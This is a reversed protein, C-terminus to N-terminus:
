YAGDRRRAPIGLDSRAQDGRAVAPPLHGLHWGEDRHPCPYANLRGERAPMKRAARRAERRNPFTMKGCSSCRGIPAVGEPVRM